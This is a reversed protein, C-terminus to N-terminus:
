NIFMAYLLSFYQHTYVTFIRSFVKMCLAALTKRCSLHYNLEITKQWKKHRRYYVYHPKMQYNAQLHRKQRRISSRDKGLSILNLRKNRSVGIQMFLILHALHKQYQRLQMSTPSISELNFGTSLLAESQSLNIKKQSNYKKKSQFKVQSNKQMAVQTQTFLVSAKHIHTTSVSSMYRKEQIYPKSAKNHEMQRKKEPLVSTGSPVRIKMKKALNLFARERTTSTTTVVDYWKVLMTFHFLAKEIAYAHYHLLQQSPKQFLQAYIKNRYKSPQGRISHPKM